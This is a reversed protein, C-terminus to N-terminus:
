KIVDEKKLVETVENFWNVLEAKEKWYKSELVSRATKIMEQAQEDMTNDVKLTFVERSGLMFQARLIKGDLAETNSFIADFELLDLKANIYKNWVRSSFLKMNPYDSVTMKTPGKKKALRFRPIDDEDDMDEDRRRDDNM